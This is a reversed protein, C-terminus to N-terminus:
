YLYEEQPLRCYENHTLLVDLALPNVGQQLLLLAEAKAYENMQDYSLDFLEQIEVKLFAEDPSVKNDDYFKALQYKIIQEIEFKKHLYFDGPNIRFLLKFFRINELAEDNLAGNELVIRIYEILVNLFDIKAFSENINYTFLIEDIEKTHFEKSKVAHLIAGVYKPMEINDDIFQIARLLQVRNM